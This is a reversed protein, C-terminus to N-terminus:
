QAGVNCGNRKCIAKGKQDVALFPMDCMGAPGSDFDHLMKTHGIPEIVGGTWYGMIHGDGTKNVQKRGFNKADPIFYYCM